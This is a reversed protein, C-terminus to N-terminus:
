YREVTAPNHYIAAAEEIKRLSAEEEATLINRHPSVGDPKKITENTENHDTVITGGSGPSVGHKILLEGWKEVGIAIMKM